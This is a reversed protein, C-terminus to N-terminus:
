EENQYRILSRIVLEVHEQAVAKAIAPKRAAIANVANTAAARTDCVNFSSFGRADGRESWRRVDNRSIFEVMVDGKETGFDIMVPRKKEPASPLTVGDLEPCDKLKIGRKFFEKEIIELAEAEALMVPPNVAVCGFGVCGLGVCGLGVCGFGVCGFFGFGVFRGITVCVFRTVRVTRCGDFVTVVFVSGVVGRRVSRSIRPISPPEPDDALPGRVDGFPVTAASSAAAMARMLSANLWDQRRGVASWRPERGASTSTRSLSKPATSEALRTWDEPDGPMSAVTEEAARATRRM